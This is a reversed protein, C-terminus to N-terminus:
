STWVMARPLDQTNSADYWTAEGVIVGSGNVSLARACPGLSSPPLPVATGDPRWLLPTTRRPSPGDAFGVVTSSIPRTANEGPLPELTTVGARHANWRLARPAFTGPINLCTEGLIDGAENLGSASSLPAANAPLPLLHPTPPPPAGPGAAMAGRRPTPSGAM